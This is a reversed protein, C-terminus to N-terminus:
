QMLSPLTDPPQGKFPKTSGIPYLSWLTLQISPPHMSRACTRSTTLATRPLTGQWGVMMSSRSGNPLTQSGEAAPSLSPPSAATKLTDTPHNPSPTSIGSSDPRSSSSRRKVTMWSRKTTWKKPPWTKTSATLAPKPPSSWGMSSPATPTQPSTMAPSPVISQGPLCKDLPSSITPPLPPDQPYQLMPLLLLSDLCEPVHSMPVQSCRPSSKLLRILSLLPLPDETSPPALPNQLTMALSIRCPSTVTIFPATPYNVIGTIYQYMTPESNTGSASSAIHAPNLPTLTTNPVNSPLSTKLPSIKPFDNSLFTPFITPCEISLQPKAQLTKILTQPSASQHM